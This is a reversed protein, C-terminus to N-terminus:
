FIINIIKKVEFIFNTTKFLFRLKIKEKLVLNIWSKTKNQNFKFNILENHVMINLLCFHSPSFTVPYFSHIGKYCDHICLITRDVINFKAM